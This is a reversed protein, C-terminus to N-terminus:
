DNGDNTEGGVMSVVMDMCTQPDDDLMEGSFHLVRWGLAAAINGKIRDSDRAHRGGREVWQGGDIEVAVKRGPWAFDFRWRRTPHFRHERKYQSVNWMRCLQEFRCEHESKSM